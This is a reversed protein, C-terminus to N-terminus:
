SREKRVIAFYLPAFSRSLRKSEFHDVRRLARVEVRDAGPAIAEATVVWSPPAGEREVKLYVYSGANLRELVRGSWRSQAPDVSAASAFPNRGPQSRSDAPEAQCALLGFCVALLARRKVM